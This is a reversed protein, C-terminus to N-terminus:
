PPATPADVGTPPHNPGLAIAGGGAPRPQGTVDQAMGLALVVMALPLVIRRASINSVSRCRGMTHEGKMAASSLPAVWCVGLREREPHGESLRDEVGDGGATGRRRAARGTARRLGGRVWTSHDHPRLSDRRAPADAVPQQAGPTCRATRRM